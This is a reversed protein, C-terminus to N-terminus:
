VVLYLEVKLCSGCLAELRGLIQPSWPCTPEFLFRGGIWPIHGPSCATWVGLRLAVLRNDPLKRSEAMDLFAELSGEQLMIDLKRIKPHSFSKPAPVATLYELVKRSCCRGTIALETMSPSLKLMFVFSQLPLPRSSSSFRFSRLSCNSRALMEVVLDMELENETELVELDSLNPFSFEALISSDFGSQRSILSLSTINSIIHDPLPDSNQQKLLGELTFHQAYLLQPVLRELDKRQSEDFHVSQIQPWENRHADPPLRTVHLHKLCPARTFYKLSFGDHRGRTVSLSQLDPFTMSNFTPYRSFLTDSGKVSLHGIELCHGMIYRFTQDSWHEQATPQLLFRDESSGIIRLVLPMPKARSAYLDFLSNVSSQAEISRIRTLDVTICSWLPSSGLSIERWRSCVQSLTLAARMWVKCDLSPANFMFEAEEDVVLAFILLLVETPTDQSYGHNSVTARASEPQPIPVSALRTSPLKSEFHHLLVNGSAM